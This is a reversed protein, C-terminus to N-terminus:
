ALDCAAVAGDGAECVRVKLGRLQGGHAFADRQPHLVEEEVRLFHEVAQLRQLEPADLPGGSRLRAEEVQEVAVLLLDGLEVTADGAAHAERPHERDGALGVRALLVGLHQRRQGADRGRRGLERRVHPQQLMFTLHQLRELALLYARARHGVFAIRHAGLPHRAERPEDDLELAVGPVGRRRLPELAGEVVARVPPKYNGLREEGRISDQHEGGVHGRPELHAFRHDGAVDRRRHGEQGGLPEEHLRYLGAAVTLGKVLHDACVAEGHRLRDRLLPRGVVQEIPQGGVGLELSELDPRGRVLQRGAAVDAASRLLHIFEQVVHEGRHQPADLTTPARPHHQHHRDDPDGRPRHEAQGRQHRGRQHRREPHQEEM